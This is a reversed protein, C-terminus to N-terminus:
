VERAKKGGTPYRSKLNKLKEQRRAKRGSNRQFEDYDILEPSIIKLWVPKIMPIVKNTSSIKGVFSIYRTRDYMFMLSTHFYSISLLFLQYLAFNYTILWVSLVLVVKVIKISAYHYLQLLSHLNIVNHLHLSRKGVNVVDTIRKVGRDTDFYDRRVQCHPAGNKLWDTEGKTTVIKGMIRYALIFARAIMASTIGKWIELAIIWIRESDAQTNSFIQLLESHKKSMAPFVQLDLVNTYPGQPAQLEM